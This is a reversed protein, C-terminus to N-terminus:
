QAFLEPFLQRFVDDYSHDPPVNKELFVTIKKALKGGSQIDQRDFEANPYKELVRFFLYSYNGFFATHAVQILKTFKQGVVCNLKFSLLAFVTGYVKKLRHAKQPSKLKVLCTALCLCTLLDNRELHSRKTREQEFATKLFARDQETTQYGQEQWFLEFLHNYTNESFAAFENLLPSRREPYAHIENLIQLISSRARSFGEELEEQYAQRRQEYVQQRQEIEHQRVWEAREEDEIEQKILNTAGEVDFLFVKYTKDDFTLDHLGVLREQWRYAIQQGSRYPERYLCKLILDQQCKSESIAEGDFVFANQNNGYFVDKETFRQKDFEESFFKFIWIIYTQNQQYFYERDAIVSLFTTSLQIEFVVQRSQYVASVDPKRWTLLGSTDRRVTETAVETIGKGTLRNSELSAAVLEKTREHLKSEKQGNYKIARIQQQTLEQSTKIPCDDSDWQHAFHMRKLKTENEAKGRIKILQNCYYCKYKPDRRNRIADELQRRIEFIAAEDQNFFPGAFVEEGTECDLVSPITFQFGKM